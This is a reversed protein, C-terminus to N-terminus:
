FDSRTTSLGYPISSLLGSHAAHRIFARNATCNSQGQGRKNKLRGSFGIRDRVRRDPPTSRLGQESVCHHHLTDTESPSWLWLESPAIGSERSLKAGGGGGLRDQLVSMKRLAFM